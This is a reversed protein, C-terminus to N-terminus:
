IYYNVPNTNTKSLIVAFTPFNKVILENLLMKTFKESEYHGIDCIMLKDEADFYEHYKFDASVYVDAQQQIASKLLFSGSGGCIAITKILDAGGKTHKVVKLEMNDKLLKLFAQRNIPEDFEGIVGAGIQKHINQVNIIDYAVEEYPHAKLLSNIIHQEHWIEYITEIRIEQEYHREGINGVHPNALHNPKFSGFGEVTFGCDSYNGIHGASAQYLAHEVQEIHTKPVFTILKRLYGSKPELIKLRKLGLTEAIKENVGNHLVNDLNTHIAYLAINNQIAKIVTREVYNRGVLRKLGSFVIPHHSIILNCNNSIAEDVVEETCDLSILVGSVIQSNSGVILGSNDYSEQLSPHAVKELVAIVDKITINIM